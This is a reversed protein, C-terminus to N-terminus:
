RFGGPVFTTDVGIIHTWLAGLPMQVLANHYRGDSRQPCEGSVDPAVATGFTEPDYLDVRAAFAITPTGTSLDVLPRASQVYTRRGPTLQKTQTAVQAPLNPGTFYALEHAGNVAAIVAADGVWISSDLSAPLTDTDTYGLAPMGDMTVGWSLARMIWEVGGSGVSIYSARGIDWRYLLITDPIGGSAAQSPFGWMALKNPVNAAGVVNFLYGQNVNAFFWNDFKDAGIPTSVAGDFTYFGDEGLYLVVSGLVIISNPAPCGRVNETPFFDFVVPPGAYLGRWVAHRFFIAVDANALSDVLGTIEGFNGEFDNFDSQGEIAANSGPAPWTTADGNASWWIRQPGLGGVPDETNGVMLFNKPTCMRRAQPPASSQYNWIAAATASFNWVAAAQIVFDWVCTNDSINSGTGTPGGSGASMGATILIYINGANQVFVGTTPYSHSTAWATATVGDSIGAGVGTPGTGSAASLGATALSYINGNASVEEGITSYVTSNMWASGAVAGDVIGAGTGSPGTGTAASTGAQTLIYRNGNALVLEGITGYATAVTWAPATFLPGFTTSVGLAFSQIPNGFNTAVISNNFLDFEWNDGQATSYSGGSVDGWTPTTATMEYLKDATGAFLYITLDDGQVSLAGICQGDMANTSYPALSPFPGYSEPTIPIVNVAISTAEALDPLDPCFEAMPLIEQPM